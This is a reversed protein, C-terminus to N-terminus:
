ESLSQLTGALAQGTGAVVAGLQDTAPAAVPALTGASRVSRAVETTTEAVATAVPTLTPVPEPTVPLDSATVPAPASDEAPAVGGREVRRPVPTRDTPLAVVVGAAAPGTVGPAAVPLEIAPAARVVPAARSLDLTAEPSAGPGAPWTEFAMVSGGVLFAAGVAALLSGSVGFGAFVTRAHTGARM